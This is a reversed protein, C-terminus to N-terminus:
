AGGYRELLAAVNPDDLLAPALTQARLRDALIEPAHAQDFAARVAAVAEDHAGSTELTLALALRVMTGLRPCDEAESPCHHQLWEMAGEHAFRAASSRDLRRYADGRHVLLRIMTKALDLPRPAAADAADLGRLANTLVTDTSPDPLSITMAGGWVEHFMRYADDGVADVLQQMVHEPDERLLWNLLPRGETTAWDPRALLRDLLPRARRWRGAMHLAAYRMALARTSRLPELTSLAADFQGNVLQRSAIDLRDEEETVVEIDGRVTIQQITGIVSGNCDEDAGGLLSLTYRGPTPAEGGSNVMRIPRDQLTLLIDRSGMQLEVRLQFSQPSDAEALPELAREHWGGGSSRVNITPRLLTGGGSGSIQAQWSATRDENEVRIALSSSWELRQVAIVSEIVLPGGNWELPMSMLTGAGATAHFQLGGRLDRRTGYPLGVRWPADLPETFSWTHTSAELAELTEIRPTQSALGTRDRWTRLVRLEESVNGAAHLCRAADLLREDAPAQESAQEYLSAAWSHLAGAEAIRAARHLSETKEAPASAVEALTELARIARETEGLDALADARSWAEQLLNSEPSRPRPKADEHLVPLKSDGMGLTWITNDKKERVVLEDDGDGDIDHVALLHLRPLPIAHFVGPERQHLITLVPTLAHVDMHTVAIDNRGDGDVDLSRVDTVWVQTPLPAIPHVTGLDAADVLYVGAPLGHPSSPPFVMRNDQEHSRTVILQLPADPEARFTALATLSGLKRRHILTLEDGRQEFLRLDYARWGRMAVAIRPPSFDPLSVISDAISQIRNTPPHPEDVAWGDEQPRARLFEWQRQLYLEHQGDGDLDASTFTDMNPVPIVEPSISLRDGDLRHLEQHDGQPILLKPEGDHFVDIRKGPYHVGPTQGVIPLDPDTLSRWQDLLLIDDVGDGNVDYRPPLSKRVYFTDSFSPGRHARQLQRLAPLLTTNGMSRAQREAAHLNRRTLALELKLSAVERELSTPVELQEIRHLLRALSLSDGRGSLVRALGCLARVQDDTHTALAFSEAFSSMARDDDGLELAQKGQQQWAVTLARTGQVDAHRTAELFTESARTRDGRDRLDAAHTAAQSLWMEAQAEREQALSREEIWGWSDWAQWAAVTLAAGFGVAVLTKRSRRAWWRLKRTLSPRTAHVPEGRLCREADEALSLASAYRDSASFALAKHCVLAVDEPIHPARTRIPMPVNERVSQLWQASTTAEHPTQGCLLQYLVAGVAYIDAAPGVQDLLGAAQEPAMYAPTGLIQGTKTLRAEEEHAVLAVGFDTLLPSEDEDLLINAPKVDRHVVGACHAHHLARSLEAALTIAQRWHMPGGDDIRARLTSGRVYAMAIWAEDAEVRADYVPVIGPHHLRAVVVAENLFRTRHHRKSWGQAQMVKLAVVRDLSMDWAKYVVGMAGYGVVELISYREQILNGGGRPANSEPHLTDLDLSEVDELAAAAAAWAEDATGPASRLELALEFMQRHRERAVDDDSDVPTALLEILLEGTRLHDPTGELVDGLGFRSIWIVGEDLSLCDADLFGHRLGANHAELMNEIIRVAALVREAVSPHSAIYDRLPIGPAPEFRVHLGDAQLSWSELGSLPLGLEDLLRADRRLAARVHDQSHGPDVTFPAM